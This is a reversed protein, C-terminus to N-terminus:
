QLSSTVTRSRVTRNGTPCHTIPRFPDSGSGTRPGERTEILRARLGHEDVRGTEAIRREFVEFAASLFRTLRLLREAGRDIEASPELSAAMLREFAAVTKDRRRLEDYFSLIEVILGPRLRFPAPTGREVADLAARRFIVEREFDTLMPPVGPLREHLKAYLESRTILDPLLLAPSAATLQLTELTRRLSEAAGRSPVLVACARADPVRCAREAIAQHMARLDPVRVLRTIRPTIM